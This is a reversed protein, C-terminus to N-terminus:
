CRNVDNDRTSELISTQASVESNLQDTITNFNNITINMKPSINEIENKLMKKYQEKDKCITDHRHLTDMRVINKNCFRCVTSKSDLKVNKNLQIESTRVEDNKLLCKDMHGILRRSSSLERHCFDCIYKRNSKRESNFQNIKPLNNLTHCEVHSSSRCDRIEYHKHFTDIVDYLEGEFYEQGIDQRHIFKLKFVNKLNTESKHHDQCISMCLLKSGKPYNKFRQIIDKTKGIKYVNQQTTIFEREILVYVFSENSM